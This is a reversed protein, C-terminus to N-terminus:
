DKRELAQKIRHSLDILHDKSLKDAMTPLAADIERKLQSLHARVATPADSGSFDISIGSGPGGIPVKLQMYEVLEKIFQKQSARRWYTISKKSTLESFIGTKLDTMMEGMTYNNAEPFRNEMTELTMLLSSTGDRGLLEHMTKSITTWITAHLPYRVKNAINKDLLWEPTEFVNKNIFAIAEKQLAKPAPTYVLGDQEISKRTEYTGGINRVVHAIYRTYQDAVRVYMHNLNEYLDGEEKTWEPLGALVRKLNKIGYEAAKMANNGLDETQVRPDRVQLGEGAFWLRPNAKLSDVIWRNTLKKDEELKTIGTYRYGWQIAWQDYEGIRPFLSEQPINDEPQAVYNFRAYDMISATHGHAALWEKDRLKEVPTQSSSGFNHRLGLTHGVEHSSVFRILQGMLEDDFKMKRAKPDTAACQVMYWDHVLEMVNHYWGIHSELIEGSRPDHVNPGYANPIPSAFYRLVSFRADELSMTTDNEPWEKAMIANKFGAKEFAKQWDNIGAMLYPRWKKPTAPDIYYVIPKAPEVLEGRKYKEMDEPQPELRWRVIFQEDDAKQQDDSFLMYSDGFFGVRPDFSRKCMPTEPLLLLSTNIELTVAGAVKAVPFFGAGFSVSEGITSTYTKVTRIETNIPYTTINQIYSRDAALAGLTYRKKIAADISVSTNDGKFFETVDIVTSHAGTNYAAVPFAAAIPNLNSNTVAKYIDNTSDAQSILAVVRLFINNSPGKEFLITQQNAIEGGYASSGGATKTFRTVALIERNLISDPIEFYYKEEVKHVTFLGKKTVAAATIVDKYPKPAKPTTTTTAPPTAGTTAPQQAMVSCVSVICSLSVFFRKM